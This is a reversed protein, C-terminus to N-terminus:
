KSVLYQNIVAWTCSVEGTLYLDKWEQSDKPPEIFVWKRVANNNADYLFKIEDLNKDTVKVISFLRSWDDFLGGCAIFKQMSELASWKHDGDVLTIIEAKPLGSKNSVLIQCAM